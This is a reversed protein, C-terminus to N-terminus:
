EYAGRKLPLQRPAGSLNMENGGSEVKEDMEGRYYHVLLLPVAFALLLRAISGQTMDTDHKEKHYFAM